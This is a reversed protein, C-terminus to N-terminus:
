DAAEPQYFHLGELLWFTGCRLFLYHLGLFRFSVAVGSFTFDLRGRCGRGVLHDGPKGLLAFVQFDVPVKTSQDFQFSTVKM